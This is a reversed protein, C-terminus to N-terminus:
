SAGSAIGGVGPVSGDNISRLWGEPRQSVALGGGLIHPVGPSVWEFGCAIFQVIM